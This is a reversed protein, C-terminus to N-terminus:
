FVRTVLVIRQFDQFSNGQHQISSKDYAEFFQSLVRGLGTNHVPINLKRMGSDSEIKIIKVIAEVVLFECNSGAMSRM